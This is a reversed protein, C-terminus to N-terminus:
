RQSEPLLPETGSVTVHTPFAHYWELYVFHSRDVATPCSNAEEHGMLDFLPLQACGCSEDRSRIGYRQWGVGWLNWLREFAAGGNSVLHELVPTQSSCGM